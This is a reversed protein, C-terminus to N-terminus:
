RGGASANSKGAETTGGYVGMNVVRGNPTPEYGIEGAPDGADICPSIADDYRWSLTTEDWRGMSSQLHYDGPLLVAYPNGPDRFVSPFRSDVWLSHSVFLPEVDLNGIGSWGGEIDSYTASIRAREDAYIMSDAADPCGSTNHYFISNTLALTSDIVRLGAGCEGIHNDAITCNVFAADSDTCQILASGSGTPRNGVILCRSFTVVGGSCDIVAIQGQNDRIAFGSVTTPADGTGNIQVVPGKGDAQIVPLPTGPRDNPDRGALHISKRSIDIHEFYTGSHVRVTEGDFAAAVAEEISDFPHDATGDERPDGIEPDGPSPDGPADDDVHLERKVATFTACIQHDQDIRITTPNATSYLTGTWATFEFGPAPRAELRIWQVYFYSFTGEGPDVVSGGETSSIVVTYQGEVHYVPEEAQTTAALWVLPALAIAFALTRM